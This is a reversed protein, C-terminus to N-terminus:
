GAELGCSLDVNNREQGARTMLAFASLGPAPMGKVGAFAMMSAGSLAMKVCCERNLIACASIM